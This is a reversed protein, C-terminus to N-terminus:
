MEMFGTINIVRGAGIGMDGLDYRFMSMKDPTGAVLGTGGVVGGVSGWGVAVSAGAADASAKSQFPLTSLIQTVTTGGTTGSARQELHYGNPVVKYKVFTNTVTGYTPTGTGVATYVPTWSKWESEVTPVNRLNLNTWAPVTWLHSTGTLSLTAEFYGINVMDDGATFGSYGFIHSESTTTSMATTVIRYHSKRAITLAVASSNSDWLAYAFYPVVLGGLEVGGSNFWNTGDAITISTAASITRLTGNIKVFVPDTASPDADALTKIAVVLDNSSVSVQLKGNILVGERTILNVISDWEIYNSNTGDDLEFSHIAKLVTVEGGSVQKINVDAM